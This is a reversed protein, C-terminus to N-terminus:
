HDHGDTLGHGEVWTVHTIEASGNPHIVMFNEADGERGQSRGWQDSYKTTMIPPMLEDLESRPIPCPRESGPPCPCPRFEDSDTIDSRVCPDPPPPPPTGDLHAYITVLQAYDHANPAPYPPNQYDMCSFLSANNFDEDQHSLGINHGLEQCVVSQRWAPTDYFSGPTYYSDNMKTYARTIHNSSSISIGALGLWGTGGYNFNCLRVQGTTANCYYRDWYATSQNSQIMNLKSSLSWDAVAVNAYPDWQSTFSNRVTQNFSPTTRYWHYPGWSHEAFAPSTLLTAVIFIVIKKM